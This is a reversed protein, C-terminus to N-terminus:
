IDRIIGRSIPTTFPHTDLALSGNPDKVVKDM